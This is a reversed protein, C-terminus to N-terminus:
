GGHAEGIQKIRTLLLGKGVNVHTAFPDGAVFPQEIGDEEELLEILAKAGPQRLLARASKLRSANLMQQEEFSLAM